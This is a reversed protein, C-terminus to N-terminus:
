NTEYYLTHTSSVSFELNLLPLFSVIVFLYCNSYNKKKLKQKMGIKDILSHINYLKKRMENNYMISTYEIYNNLEHETSKETNYKMQSITNGYEYVYSYNKKKFKHTCYPQLVTEIFFFIM